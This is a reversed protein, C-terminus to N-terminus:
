EASTLSVIRERGDGEQLTVMRPDGHVLVDMVQAAAQTSDVRVGDVALVKSGDPIRGSFRWPAGGITLKLAEVKGHVFVVLYTAEAFAARDDGRVSYAKHLSRLIAAVDETRGAELHAIARQIADSLVSDEDERSRELEGVAETLLASCKKNSEALAARDLYAAWSAVGAWALSIVAVSIAAKRM